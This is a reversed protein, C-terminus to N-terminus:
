CCKCCPHLMWGEKPLKDLRRLFYGDQQIHYHQEELLHQFQALLRQKQKGGRMKVTMGEKTIMM